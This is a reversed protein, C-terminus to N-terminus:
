SSRCAACSSRRPWCSSIPLAERTPVARIGLLYRSHDDVLGAFHCSGRRHTGAFYFPGKMDIHWLSAATAL